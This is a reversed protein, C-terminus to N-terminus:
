IVIEFRVDTRSEMWGYENCKLIALPMDLFSKEEEETVPEKSFKQTKKWKLVNKQNQQLEKPNGLTGYPEKPKKFNRLIVQSM